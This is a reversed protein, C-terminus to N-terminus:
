KMSKILNLTNIDFWNNLNDNLIIEKTKYLDSTLTKHKKLNRLDEYLKKYKIVHKKLIYYCRYYYYPFLYM